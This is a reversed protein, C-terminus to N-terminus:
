GPPALLADIADQDKAPARERSQALCADVTPAAQGRRRPGATAGSVRLTRGDPSRFFVMLACDPWAYTWLASTGERRAIDPVGLRAKVDDESASILTALTPTLPRPPPAPVAQVVPAPAPPPAPKPKPRAAADGAALALTAALSLIPAARDM